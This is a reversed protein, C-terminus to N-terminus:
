DHDLQALLRLEQDICHTGSASHGRRAHLWIQLSLRQVRMDTANLIGFRLIQGDTFKCCLLEENDIHFIRSVEASMIAKDQDQDLSVTLLLMNCLLLTLRRIKMVPDIAGITSM